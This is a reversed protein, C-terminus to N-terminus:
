ASGGVIDEKAAELSTEVAVMFDATRPLNSDSGSVGSTPQSISSQSRQGSAEIFTPLAAIMNREASMLPQGNEMHNRYRPVSEGPIKITVM